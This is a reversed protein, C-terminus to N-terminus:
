LIFGTKTIYQHFLSAFGGVERANLIAQVFVQDRKRLFLYFCPQGATKNILPFGLDKPKVAPRGVIDRCKKSKM